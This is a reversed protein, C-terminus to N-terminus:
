NGAFLSGQKGVVGVAHMSTRDLSVLSRMAENPSYSTSPSVPLGLYDHEEAETPVFRLIWQAWGMVGSRLAGSQLRSSEPTVMFAVLMLEGAFSGRVLAHPWVAVLVGIAIMVGVVTWCLSTDALPGICWISLVFGLLHLRRGMWLWSQPDVLAAM